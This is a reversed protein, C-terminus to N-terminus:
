VDDITVRRLATYGDVTGLGRRARGPGVNVDVGLKIYVGVEGWEVGVRESGCGWGWGGCGGRGFRVGVRGLRDVAGRRIRGVEREDLVGEHDVGPRGPGPDVHVLEVM